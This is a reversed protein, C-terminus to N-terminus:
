NPLLERVKRVCRAVAEGVVGPEAALTQISPQVVAGALVDAAVELTKLARLRPVTRTFADSPLTDYVADGMNLFGFNNPGTLADLYMQGCLLVSPTHPRFTRWTTAWHDVSMTAPAYLVGDAFLFSVQDRDACLHPNAPVRVHALEPHTDSQLAEWPVDPGCALQTFRDVCQQALSHTTKPPGQM